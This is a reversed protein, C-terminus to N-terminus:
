YKMVTIVLCDYAQCTPYNSVAALSLLLRYYEGHLLPLSSSTQQESPQESRLRIPPMMVNFPSWDTKSM